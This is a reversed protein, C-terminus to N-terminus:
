QIARAAIGAADPNKAVYEPLTLYKVQIQKLAFWRGHLAQAAAKASGLAEFLLYVDGMSHKDVGCHIVKGFKSCEEMVEDRIEHEWGVETETTPDFM